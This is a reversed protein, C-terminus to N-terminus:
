QGAGAGDEGSVRSQYEGYGVFGGLVETLRGFVSCTVAFGDALGRCNLLALM